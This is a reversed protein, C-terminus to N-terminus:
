KSGLLDTALTTTIASASLNVINNGILIASLMKDTNQCITNVIKARKSGNKELTQMKIKNVSIFATEASSFFASLTILIFIIILRFSESTDM